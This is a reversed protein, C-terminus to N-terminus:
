GRRGRGAWGGDTTRVMRMQGPETAERAAVTLQAVGWGRGRGRDDRGAVTLRTFGGAEAVGGEDVAGDGAGPPGQPAM